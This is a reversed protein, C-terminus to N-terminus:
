TRYSFVINFGKSECCDVESSFGLSNPCNDLGCILDDRCEDNKNCNGEDEECPDYITCFDEDGVNAIQCCDTNSDFGLQQTMEVPCSNSRCRQGKECHYHYDCDGKNLSNESCPQNCACFGIEGNKVRKCNVSFSSLPLM